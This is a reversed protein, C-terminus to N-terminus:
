SSWGTSRSCSRALEARPLCAPAPDAVLPRGAITVLLVDKRTAALLARAPDDSLRRIVLLDAPLGPAIRGAECLRLQEAPNVTVMRVLEHPETGGTDAAVRLEELLDQSGTLRSDTGLSIRDASEPSSEIFQRVKASERLLFFNSAPCWVLGAGREVVKAWDTCSLGVGHILVSNSGLCGRQDLEKLENQAAEDTGEALHIFFPHDASASRFRRVVDGGREGRAGARGNQLYFSHAWGYRRVVRVPFRFRLEPYFPNHHAVTTVGALLNKLGGLFLRDSLPHSQGAKLAPDNRLRPRMDEVWQSANEYVSRCKVRGYHNVELHDHANILGPFVM